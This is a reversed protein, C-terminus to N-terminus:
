RRAFRKRGFRGSKSRLSYPEIWHYLPTLPIYLLDSLRWHGRRSLTGIIEASSYGMVALRADGINRLYRIAWYRRAVGGFGKTWSDRSDKTTTNYKTQGTPDGFRGELRPPHRVAEPAYKVDFHAFVRPWWHEPDSVLDEYKIFMCQPNDASLRAAQVMEKLGKILDYHYLYAKWKGRGWTANISSVVALPNRWLFLFKADPFSKMISSCFAANRPTKDIFICDEMKSFNGYLSTAMAAVADRWAEEGDDCLSLLENLGIRVHDYAFDALPAEGERIGLLAPLLWPEPVTRVQDSASLVRQVYTSGARPLSFIFGLRM